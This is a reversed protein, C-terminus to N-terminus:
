HMRSAKMLCGIFVGSIAEEQDEQKEIKGLLNFLDDPSCMIEPEFAATVLDNQSFEFVKFVEEIIAPLKKRHLAVLLDHNEIETQKAFKFIFEQDKHRDCLQAYQANSSYNPIIHQLWVAKDMDGADVAERFLSMDDGSATVCKIFIAVLTVTRLINM